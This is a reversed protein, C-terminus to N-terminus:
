FNESMFGRRFNKSIRQLMRRKLHLSMPYSITEFNPFLGAERGHITNFSHVFLCLCSVLLGVNFKMVFHVLLTLHSFAIGEAAARDLPMLKM